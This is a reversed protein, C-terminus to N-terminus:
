QFNESLAYLNEVGSKTVQYLCEWYMGYNSNSIACKWYQRSLFKTFFSILIKITANGSISSNCKWHSFVM